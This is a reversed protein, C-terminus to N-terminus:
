AICRAQNDNRGDKRNTPAAFVGIDIKKTKALAELLERETRIGFQEALLKKVAQIEAM